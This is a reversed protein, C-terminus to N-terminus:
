TDRSAEKAQEAEAKRHALVADRLADEFPAIRGDSGCAIEWADAAKVVAYAASEVKRRQLLEAYCKDCYAEDYSDRYTAKLSGCYENHCSRM